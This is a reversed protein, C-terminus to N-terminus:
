VFSWESRHDQNEYSRLKSWGDGDPVKRIDDGFVEKVSEVKRETISDLIDLTKLVNRAVHSTYIWKVKADRDLELNNKTISDGRMLPISITYPTTLEVATFVSSNTSPLYNDSFPIGREYDNPVVCFRFFFLGIKKIVQEEKDELYVPVESDTIEWM